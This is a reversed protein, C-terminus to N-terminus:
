QQASACDDSGIRGVTDADGGRPSRLESTAASLPHEALGRLVVRWGSERARKVSGLLGSSNALMTLGDFKVFIRLQADAKALLGALADPCAVDLTEPEVGVACSLAAPLEATLLDEFAAARYTWDWEAWSGRM